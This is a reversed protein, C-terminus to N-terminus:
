TILVSSYMHYPVCFSRQFRSDNLLSQGSKSKSHKTSRHITTSVNVHDMDKARDVTELLQLLSRCACIQQQLQRHDPTTVKKQTNRHSNDGRTRKNTPAVTPQSAPRERKNSTAPGPPAFGQYLHPPNNRPSWRDDYGRDFDRRDRPVMITM